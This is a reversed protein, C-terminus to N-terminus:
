DDAKLFSDLETELTKLVTECNLVLSSMKRWKLQFSYAHRFVHRFELYDRLQDRLLESIVAPRNSTRQAMANLLDRHWAEGTPPAGDLEIAIRKFINEIGTYFSHLM